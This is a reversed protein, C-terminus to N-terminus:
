TSQHQIALSPAFPRLLGGRHPLIGAGYQRVLTTWHEVPLPNPETQEALLRSLLGIHVMHRAAMDHNPERVRLFLLGEAYMGLAKAHPYDLWDKWGHCVLRIGDPHEALARRAAVLMPTATPEPGRGHQTPFVPDAMSDSVATTQPITAVTLPAKLLAGLILAGYGSGVVARAKRNNAVLDIAINEATIRLSPGFKDVGSRYWSNSRDRVFVCNCERRDAFETYDFFDPPVQAWDRFSSCFLVVSETDNCLHFRVETGIDDFATGNRESLSAGPNDGHDAPDAPPFHEKRLSFENCLGENLRGFVQRIHEVEGATIPAPTVSVNAWEGPPYLQMMRQASTPDVVASLFDYILGEKRAQNYSRICLRSRGVTKAWLRAVGLHNFYLNEPLVDSITFPESSGSRVRSDFASRVLSAQDRFYVIVRAIEAGCEEFFDHLKVLAAERFRSHFFESSLLITKDDPVSRITDRMQVLCSEWGGHPVPWGIRLDDRLFALSFDAHNVGQLPYVVGHEALVARNDGCYQQISTSGTKEGGIHLVIRKPM